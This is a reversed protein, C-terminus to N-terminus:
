EPPGVRVEGEELVRVPEIAVAIEDLVDLPIKTGFGLPTHQGRGALDDTRVSRSESCHEKHSKAGVSRVVCDRDVM